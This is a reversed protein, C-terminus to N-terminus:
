NTRKEKQSVKEEASQIVPDEGTVMEKATQTIGIVAAGVAECMDGTVTTGQLGEGTKQEVAVAQDKTERQEGRGGIKKQM